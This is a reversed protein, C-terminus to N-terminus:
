YYKTALVKKYKKKMNILDSILIKVFLVTFLLLISGLFIYGLPSIYAHEFDNKGHKWILFVETLVIMHIM